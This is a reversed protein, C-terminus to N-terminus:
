LKSPTSIHYGSKILEPYIEKLLQPLIKVSKDVHGIMIARGQKNAIDLGKYLETLMADRSVVNDLFPANRDLTEIGLNLSAQHVQNEEALATRSDIFYIGLESCVELVAGIRIVDSTILSGEHNNMGKVPGVIGINEKLIGAVQYTSMDKTVAGPGPNMNLNKAQM